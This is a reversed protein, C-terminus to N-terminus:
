EEEVEKAYKMQREGNYALIKVNNEQKMEVTKGENTCTDIFGSNKLSLASSLYTQNGIAKVIYPTAVRETNVLINGNVDVIETTNLVRKDNISIAEAGALRLENVLRILDDSVIEKENNDSLTVIVGQGSVDTKGALINTQMLEEDLLEEAEEDSSMKAEYEQSKQETEALKEAAEEYKTKWSSLMTKLESEQATKIGTIDTEEVAKFQVLIVATLIICVLMISIIIINKEKKM